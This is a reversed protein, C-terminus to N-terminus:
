GNNSYLPGGHVYIVCDLHIHPFSSYLSGTLSCFSNLKQPCVGSGTIPSNYGLPGGIIQRGRSEVSSCGFVRQWM